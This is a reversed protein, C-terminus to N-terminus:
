FFLNFAQKSCSVMLLTKALFLLESELKLGTFYRVQTIRLLLVQLLKDEYCSSISMVNNLQISV